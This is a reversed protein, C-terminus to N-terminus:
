DVMELDITRRELNTESVRVTVRQGLIIKEKTRQGVIEYKELDVNYYDGKLDSMRVMGECGLNELEVYFGFESMGSVFGDFVKGEFQQMYEVQKFKISLREAQAAKREMDSSHKCKEEYKGADASKGGSLYREILRHAMMDPYRRIPSTFHSYHAFGLGFHELPETTYKAKSMSRIALQQLVGHEAKGETEVALKNLEQAVNRQIDVKYGFRGAFQAFTDLKEQDPAEHVRYVMTDKEKSKSRKYVFEAVKKNALLMYEEIMKHAEKREKIYVGLPKGHEDLKFRVEQTEFSISGKSFREDRLKLAIDNLINIEKQFTGEKSEIREQAEEYAFREDSFIVTRGIWVDKISGDKTMKFVCSFTLKEERPRLSCVGNSLREPLMPVVRDVLYVSTARNYAEQELASKPKVYHTVDAIHVGIEYVGDELERISLADDFDKADVPDITFTTIKRFDRRKSIEEESIKDEIRESERLVNRPFKMPLEFDAMISSIEAENEGVKGFIELVRGEPNLDKKDPYETVEVKIKDNHTALGLFHAPIFIDFYVARTEPLLFYTGRKEVVKGVFTKRNRSIVSVIEATNNEKRGSYIAVKVKDGTLAFHEQHNSVPLEDTSNEYIFVAKNKHIVQLSGTAYELEQNLVYGGTKTKEIKGKKFLIQLIEIIRARDRSSTLKMKRMINKPTYEDKGGTLFMGFIQSESLSIKPERRRDKKSTSGKRKNRIRAGNKRPM